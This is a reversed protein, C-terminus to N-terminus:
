STSRSGDLLVQAVLDPDDYMPVHGCGPLPVFRARPLCRRATRVQRPWLLLDRTGWAVTVPVELDPCPPFVYWLRHANLLITPAQRVGAVLAHWDADSLRSPHAAIALLLPNIVPRVAVMNRLAFPATRALAQYGVVVAGIYLRSPVNMFAAPALATASAVAGRRALELAIMGGLSNGAVHPHGLGAEALFAEVEDVMAEVTFRRHRPWPPNAGFGPLDVAIVQREQALRDMVPLWGQWRHAFGHLLVLPPGSGRREHVLEINM